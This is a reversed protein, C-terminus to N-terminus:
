VLASGHNAGLALGTGTIDGVSHSVHAGDASLNVTQTRHSRVLEVNGGLFQLCRVLQYALDSLGTLQWDHQEGCTANCSRSVSCHHHLETSLTDKNTGTDELGTIRLLAGISDDLWDLVVIIRLDDGI